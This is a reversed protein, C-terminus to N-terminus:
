PWSNLKEFFRAVHLGDVLGHHATLQVSVEFRDGREVIKGWAVRPTSDDSQHAEHGAWPHRLSQFDIWPLSTVFVLDPRSDEDLYLQNNRRIGDVRRRIEELFQLRDDIFSAPCFNIAEDDTLVTFSPHVREHVVVEDGDIRQRLEPVDNVAAMVLYLMNGFLSEGAERSQRTLETVDVRACVDLFPQEFNKFYEFHSRRPWTELDIITPM